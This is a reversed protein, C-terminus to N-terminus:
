NKNLLKWIEVQAEKNQPDITLVARYAEEAMIRNGLHAMLHGLKMQAELQRPNSQVSAELLDKAEQTRGQRDYIKSLQYQTDALQANLRIMTDLLTATEAENKQNQAQDIEKLLETIRQPHTKVIKEFELRAAELINKQSYMQALYNRPEVYTPDLKLAREFAHISDTYRGRNM